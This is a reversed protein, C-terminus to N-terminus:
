ASVPIVRPSNSILDRSTVHRTQDENCRVDLTFEVSCEPCFEECTCDQSLLLFRFSAAFGTSGRRTGLGEEYSFPSAPRWARTLQTPSACRGMPQKFAPVEWNLSLRCVSVAVLRWAVVALM